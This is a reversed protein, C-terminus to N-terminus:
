GHGLKWVSAKKITQTQPAESLTDSGCVTSHVYMYKVLRGQKECKNSFNSINRSLHTNEFTPVCIKKQTRLDCIRLNKPENRLRLEVMKWTHWDASRLDAIKKFNHILDHRVTCHVQVYQVCLGEAQEMLSCKPM